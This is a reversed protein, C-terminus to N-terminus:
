LGFWDNLIVRRTLMYLALLSHLLYCVITLSLHWRNRWLQISFGILGLSASFGGGFLFLVAIGLENGLSGIKNDLAANVELYGVLSTVIWGCLISITLLATIAKSSRTKEFALETNFHQRAWFLFPILSAFLWWAGVLELFKSHQPDKLYDALFILYLLYVGLGALIRLWARRTRGNIWKM